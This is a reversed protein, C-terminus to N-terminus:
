WRWVFFAYEVPLDGGPPSNGGGSKNAGTSYAKELFLQNSMPSKQKPPQAVLGLEPITGTDGTRTAHM